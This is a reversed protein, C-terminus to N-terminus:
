GRNFEETDWTSSKTKRRKPIYIYEHGWPDKSKVKTPRNKTYRSLAFEDKAPEVMQMPGQRPQYPPEVEAKEITICSVPCEEPCIMCGVCKSVQIPYETMDLTLNAAAKSDELNRRRPRTFDLTNVPCVDGCIGCQICRDMEFTFKFPVLGM